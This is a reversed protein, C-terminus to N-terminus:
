PSWRAPRAFAEKPRSIWTAFERQMSAARVCCEFSYLTYGLLTPLAEPLIAWAFVQLRSGGTAHLAMVPGPTAGEFVDAYVRGLVGAYSVALALTGALPGLGVTVVFLLAWVLDPVARFFRLVGRAGQSANTLVLSRLTGREESALVGRQWLNSAGLIALPLAMVVSLATGAVAISLTRLAAAFTVRLFSPSVDPPFLGAAFHGVASLSERDVLLLPHVGAARWSSAIIAVAVFLLSPTRLGAHSPCEARQMSGPPARM